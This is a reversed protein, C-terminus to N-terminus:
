KSFNAELLPWFSELFGYCRFWSNRPIHSQVTCLLSHFAQFMLMVNGCFMQSEIKVNVMMNIPLFYWSSKWKLVIQTHINLIYTYKSRGHLTTFTKVNWLALVNIHSRFLILLICSTPLNAFHLWKFEKTEVRSCKKHQPM